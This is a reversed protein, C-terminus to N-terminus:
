RAQQRKAVPFYMDQATLGCEKMMELCYELKGMDASVNAGPTSTGGGLTGNNTGFAFKIGAEKAAKIIKASPIHYRANIELAINRDKLAQIVQQIREDTWLKDYDDLMVDPLFTPNVYIDIPEENLIKVTRDVIIDMYKEKPIDVWVEEPIWLRTRRGKHDWFTLADTFVYDFKERAEKSFTTVWERGEGQMAMFCPLNRTTDLFTAIDSDSTVPFGIGCNPAIGYYIGIKRSNDMAQEQNWGKLHVHFDIIPFNAQQLQIIPDTQEDVADSREALEEISLPKVQMNKFESTGAYNEIAFTGESLLKGKNEVTRFPSAPEVYDVVLINNVRVTIHKGIVKVNLNFWEQDGAMSKYANRVSSLSGTKRLEISTPTNNILVQYGSVNGSHIWLGAVSNPQTQIDASFEFNKFQANQVKGDYYLSAKGNMSLIDNSVTSNGEKIWNKFSKDPMISNWQNTYDSQCSATLIIVAISLYYKILKM